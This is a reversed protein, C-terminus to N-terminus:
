DHGLSEALSVIIGAPGYVYALRYINEYNVIEGVLYSGTALLREVTADIDSVQFMMSRLGLTNPPAMYPEPVIVEPNSFQTLELRGSGDPTRMMAIRCRLNPIANIRDVWEGAIDTEGELEMGLETFFQKSAELDTVVVSVHHMGLLAM